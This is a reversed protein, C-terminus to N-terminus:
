PSTQHRSQKRRQLNQRVMNLHTIIKGEQHTEDTKGIPNIGDEFVLQLRPSLGSGGNDEASQQADGGIEGVEIMGVVIRLIGEASRGFEGSRGRSGTCLSRRTGGSTEVTVINRSPAIADVLRHGEEDGHVLTTSAGADEVAVIHFAEITEVVEVLM